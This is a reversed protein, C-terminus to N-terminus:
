ATSTPGIGKLLEVIAARITAEDAGLDLLIQAALGGNDGYLGLLLHETGIYNHGLELAVSLARELVQKARPTFPIHGEVSASGRGVRNVVAKKVASRKVGCGELAVKSLAGEVDYLGLLMHETGIYNHQLSRAAKESAAISSRARDTFRSFLTQQDVTLDVFRKQAAQRTVGLHEGIEAWTHGSTRCRDVFHTLLSDGLDNLEAARVSATELQLLPEPASDLVERILSDLTTEM